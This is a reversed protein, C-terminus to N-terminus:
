AFLLCILGTLPLRACTCAIPSYLTHCVCYDLCNGLHPLHSLLNLVLRLDTAIGCDTDSPKELVDYVMDPLVFVAKYDKTFALIIGDVLVFALNIKNVLLFLYSEPM